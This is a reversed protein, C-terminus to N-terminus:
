LEVRLTAAFNRGPQTFRGLADSGVAATDAWRVYTEDTLNFVALDLRLREALRVHGLLDFTSWGGATPRTGDTDGLEKADAWTWVLESSWRAAAPAWRLGLVTNLPDITNLAVNRDTDEGQAYAAAGQLYFDSLRADLAGLALRGRLEVGEIEVEGRNVSQFTLLGTAPDVGGSALFQPAIAFSEIFNEYATRFAALEIEGFRGSFRTGVELGASTESELDPNAITTYGGIFNTFGVNVDDYPPARFGESYRAWATIADTFRYLAGLKLTVDSDDYDEPAAQGPNGTLYVEDVEVDASYDDFRVGPTLRLRGGALEIEDQLFLARHEVETLPFDRTPLPNFEPVPAGSAADRTGGDRLSANETRYYEGGLTVTHRTPGLDLSRGLQVIAGTIEQDFRSFREREQPAGGPPLRTEFTDQRTASDQRYVKALATDLLGADGAFRYELAYRDRDRSDDASRAQILTGRSFSGADSLLTTDTEGTFREFEALITHGPAPRFSAELGISEQMRDQPDAAERTPGTGDNGGATETEEGERRTYDLMLAVRDNGAALKTSGVISSDESSFGSKLEAHLPDDSSVLDHPRLTTLAVVGGLADSGYLTSIPGRAIEARALSDVDVFDRRASLFPGFSFEEPVRINDVVTLVRNGGIGRINFGALGFRDGTGGVSVGPEYRVLDQIDRALIEEIREEDIVSVSAAVESLARETRTGVVTVTEEAGSSTEADAAHVVGAPSILLGAIAAALPHRFRAPM